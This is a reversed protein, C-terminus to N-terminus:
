LSEPGKEVLGGLDDDAGEDMRDEGPVGRVSLIDLELSSAPAGQIFGGPEVKNWNRKVIQEERMEEQVQEQAAGSEKFKQIVANALADIEGSAGSGIDADAMRNKRSSIRCFFSASRKRNSRTVYSGCRKKQSMKQFKQHEPM